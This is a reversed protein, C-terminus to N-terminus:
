SITLKSPRSVKSALRLILMTVSLKLFIKHSM